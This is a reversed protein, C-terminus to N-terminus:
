VFFDAPNAQAAEGGHIFAGPAFAGNSNFEEGSRGGAFYERAFDFDPFIKRM